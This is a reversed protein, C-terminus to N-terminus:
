RGIHGFVGVSLLPKGLVHFAIGEIRQGGTVQRQLQPFDIADVAVQGQRRALVLRQKRVDGVGVAPKNRVQTCALALQTLGQRQPQDMGVTVVADGVCTQDLRQHQGTLVTAPLM